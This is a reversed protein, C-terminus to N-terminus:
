ETPRYSMVWALCVAACQILEVPVNDWDRENLARAVEGVEEGLVRYKTDNHAPWVGDPRGWLTPYRDLEAEVM